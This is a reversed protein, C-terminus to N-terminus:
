TVLFFIGACSIAAGCARVAQAGLPWRTVTGILIGTLHLLGTAVVFGVGYGVPDAAGPLERGHPM